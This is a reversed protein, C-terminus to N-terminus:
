GRTNSAQVFFIRNLDFFDSKKSKFFDHNKELGTWRVLTSECGKRECALESGPAFRGISGRGIRERSSKSGPRNAGQGERERARESEPGRTGNTWSM